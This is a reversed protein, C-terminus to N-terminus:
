AVGKAGGCPESIVRPDSVERTLPQTPDGPRRPSAEAGEVPEVHDVM